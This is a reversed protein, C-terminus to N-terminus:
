DSDGVGEAGIWRSAGSGSVATRDRVAKPPEKPPRAKDATWFVALWCFAVPWFLLNFQAQYLRALLPRHLAHHIYAGASRPLADPDAGLM